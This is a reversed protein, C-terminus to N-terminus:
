LRRAGKYNNFYYNEALSDQKVVGAGSSAHIFNNGGVYIGVHQISASGYYGFFVLDGPILDSKAVPQGYNAQAAANHPLTQGVQAYIYATFGSCDFSSPGSGGYCYPKGLHAKALDVVTNSERNGGRSTTVREKNASVPITLNQGPQLLTSTLGNANMIAEVSVNYKQGIAYLSDGPQVMYSIPQPSASEAPAEINAEGNDKNQPAAQESAASASAPLVIKDPVTLKQGPQLLDHDLNNLNVITEVTTNYLQSIGWLTEGPVVTHSAAQASSSVLVLGATISTVTIISRKWWHALASRKPSAPSVMDESIHM